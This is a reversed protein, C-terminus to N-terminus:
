SSHHHSALSFRRIAGNIPLFPLMCFARSAIVGGGGVGTFCLICRLPSHAKRRRLRGHCKASRRWMLCAAPIPAIAKISWLSVGVAVRVCEHLWSNTQLGCPIADLEESAISSMIANGRQRAAIQLRSLTSACIAGRVMFTGCCAGANPMFRSSSPYALRCSRSRHPSHNMLTQSDQQMLAAM